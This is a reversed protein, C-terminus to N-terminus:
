CKSIKDLSYEELHAKGCMDRYVRDLDGLEDVLGLEKATTGLWIRGQAVEHVQDKTMNRGSAVVTLFRDYFQEIYNQMMQKANDEMPFVTTIALSMKHTKVSDFHIKLKDNFMESVEPIVGFVGISGTLSNSDAVISDAHCSIYYGGSAAYDGMSVIVPKGAQKILDVARLIEDSASGSGGPSNVRLVVGKINDKNLVDQFASEFKEPSITGEEKGGNAIEGEMYIVAIKDKNIKLKEVDGLNM